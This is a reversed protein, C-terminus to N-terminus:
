FLVVEDNDNDDNDFDYDDDNDDCDDTTQKLNEGLVLDHDTEPQGRVWVDDSHLLRAPVNGLNAFHDVLWFQEFHFM